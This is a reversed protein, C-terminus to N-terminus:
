NESCNMKYEENEYLTAAKQELPNTANKSDAMNYPETRSNAQLFEQETEM